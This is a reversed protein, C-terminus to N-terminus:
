GYAFDNRCRILTEAIPLIAGPECRVGRELHSFWVAELDAPTFKDLIEAPWIQGVRWVELVQGTATPHSYFGCIFFPECRQASPRLFLSFGAAGERM